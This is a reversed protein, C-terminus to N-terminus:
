FIELEIWSSDVILNALTDFNIKVDSYIFMDNRWMFYM